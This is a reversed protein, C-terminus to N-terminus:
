VKTDYLTVSPLYIGHTLVTINHHKYLTYEGDLVVDSVLTRIAPVGDLTIGSLSPLYLQAEPRQSHKASLIRQARRAAREERALRQNMSATDVGVTGGGFLADVESM